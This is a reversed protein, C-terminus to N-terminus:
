KTPRLPFRYFYLANEGFDRFDGMRKSVGVASANPCEHAPTGSVPCIPTYGACEACTAIGASGM